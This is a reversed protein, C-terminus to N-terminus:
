NEKRVAVLAAGIAGAYAPFEPIRLKVGLSRELADKFGTNSALGGVLVVDDEIGVRRVMSGIRSAIADYVARVIDPKPTKAHILSIVESEAFVVCQANIPVETQSKISLAGMEDLPVELAHSMAEIFAGAGAACRDNIAFDLVRGDEDVRMTRGEEAGVDIVTRASQIFHNAGRAAARVESIEKAAFAVSKAGVGTSFIHEIDDRQLETNMLAESLALEAAGHQNFGTLVLSSRGLMRNEEFLVAKTTKAGVDIGAVILKDVRRKM